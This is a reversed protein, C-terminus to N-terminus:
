LQTAILGFFAAALTAIMAGGVRVMLYQTQDFRETMEGRLARHSSNMENRLETRMEAFEKKMEGRLSAFKTRTETRPARLDTEVRDFRRDVQRFGDDVRHNLDNMREDTWSERVAEM